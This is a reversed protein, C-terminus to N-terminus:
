MTAHRVGNGEVPLLPPAESPSKGNRYSWLRSVHKVKIEDKIKKRGSLGHVQVPTAIDGSGFGDSGQYSLIFAERRSKEAEGENGLKIPEEMFENEEDAGIPEGTESERKLPFMSNLYHQNFQHGGIVTSRSFLRGLFRPMNPSDLKNTAFHLVGWIAVFDTNHAYHEVQGIARDEAAVVTRASLTSSTQRTLLSPMKKGGFEKGHDVPSADVPSSYSTETMITKMAELPKENSLAQSAVHRHPNNFHNAASGFTYVELKALLDQPMELLLWDLVLGGEIGGQSHLILIVKSKGPDYLVKKLLSYCVRVDNTAYGFNRQILCEIVDFIIGDTKNHIGLVPRGFTLALRNLNNMLWHEGAAVGNLFIWQEHEHEPLSKAFKADSTYTTDAGNLLKCLAWNLTVFATIYVGDMWLPFIALLPLSILFALQLIALVAHVSICFINKASPYLEDLEGGNCPNLPLVIWPLAWSYVFFYYIDKSFLRWPHDTYSYNIVAAGGIQSQYFDTAAGM